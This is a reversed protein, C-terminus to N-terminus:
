QNHEHIQATLPITFFESMKRSQRLYRFSSFFVFTRVQKMKKKAPVPYPCGIVLTCLLRSPQFAETRWSWNQYTLPSSGSVAFIYLFTNLTTLQFICVVCPFFTSSHSLGGGGGGFEWPFCELCAYILKITGGWRTVLYIVTPPHCFYWPVRPYCSHEQRNWNICSESQYANRCWSDCVIDKFCKLSNLDSYVICNKM